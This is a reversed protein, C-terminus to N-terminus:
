LGMLNPQLRTPFLHPPPPRLLARHRRFVCRALSPESGIHPGHLTGSSNDLCSLQLSLSPSTQTSLCPCLCPCVLVDPISSAVDDRGATPLIAAGELLECRSPSDSLRISRVDAVSGVFIHATHEGRLNQLLGELTDGALKSATNIGSLSPCWCNNPLPNTIMAESGCHLTKQVMGSRTEM